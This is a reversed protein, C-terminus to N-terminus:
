QSDKLDGGKWNNEDIATYIGIIMTSKAEWEARAIQM